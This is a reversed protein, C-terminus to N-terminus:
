LIRGVVRRREASPWVAASMGEGDSQYIAGYHAILEDGVVPSADPSADKVVLVYDYDGSDITASFKRGAGPRTSLVFCAQGHATGACEVYLTVRGTRPHTVKPYRGVVYYVGSGVERRNTVINYDRRAVVTPNWDAWEPASAFAEAAAKAADESRFPEGYNFEKIAVM